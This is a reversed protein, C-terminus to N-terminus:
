PTVHVDVTNSAGPTYPYGQAGNEPLAVRFAYTTAETTAHFRYSYHFHGKARAVVQEFIRWRGGETVEVDLTVGAAPYPGGLVTGSWHIWNGNSTSEPVIKLDLKPRIRIAVSATAAPAPDDSYATYSFRLTRDPGTPVRYSLYGDLGTHVTTALATGAPGGLTAVAVTADRIPVVGCHLIGRVTIPKGYAVVRPKASGNVTLSLVEGSCPSQGNALAPASSSGNVGNPSAGSTTITGDYAVKQNGAADEVILQLSHRGALFEDTDLTLSASV